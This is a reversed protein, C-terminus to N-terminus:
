LFTYFIFFITKRANKNKNEKGKKRREHLFITKFLIKMATDMVTEIDKISSKNQLMNSEDPINTKSKKLLENKM